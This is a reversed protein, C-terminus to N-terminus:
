SREHCVGAQTAHFQVRVPGSLGTRSEVRQHVSGEDCHSVATRCPTASLVSHFPNSQDQCASIARNCRLSDGFRM